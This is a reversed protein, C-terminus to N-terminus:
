FQSDIWARVTSVRTAVRPVSNASSYPVTLDVPWSQIGILTNGGRVPGGVDGTCADLALNDVCLHSDTIPRGNVLASCETNTLVLAPQGQLDDNVIQPANATDGWGTVQANQGAFTGASSPAMAIYGVTANTPVNSALRLVAM